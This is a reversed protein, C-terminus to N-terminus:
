PLSREGPLLRLRAASGALSRRPKFCQRARVGKAAQEGRQLGRQLHATGAASSQPLVEPCQTGKRGEETGNGRTPHLQNEPTEGAHPHCSWDEQSNPLQGTRVCNTIGKIAHPEGLTTLNLTKKIVYKRQFVPIEGSKYHEKEKATEVTRTRPVPKQM